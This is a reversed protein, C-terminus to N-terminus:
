PDQLFIDCEWGRGRGTCGPDKEGTLLTVKQELKALSTASEQKSVVYGIFYSEALCAM